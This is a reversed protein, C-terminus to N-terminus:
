EGGARRREPAKGRLMADDLMRALRLGGALV